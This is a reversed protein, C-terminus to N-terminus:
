KENAMPSWPNRECNLYPVQAVGRSASPDAKKRRATTTLGNTNTEIGAISLSFEVVEFTTAERHRVSLGSHPSLQRKVRM